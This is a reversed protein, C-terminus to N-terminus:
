LSYKRERQEFARRGGELLNLISAKIEHNEIGGSTYNLRGNEYKAVIIQKADTNVVLNANHTTIIIQRQSKARRFANVLKDVIFLNDLNDEPQDLVIPADGEALYIKVVVTGKQGISLVNLPAGDFSVSTRLQLWTGMAWNDLDFLASGEALVSGM